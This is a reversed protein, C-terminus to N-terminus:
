VSTLDVIVVVIFVCNRENLKKNVYPNIARKISTIDLLYFLLLLVSFEIIMKNIGLM